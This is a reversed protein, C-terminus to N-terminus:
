SIVAVGFLYGHFYLLAGYVALGAIVAVVDKSWPQPGFRPLKGRVTGSVIDLVAFLAFCGFLWTTARDGNALLHGVSWILTGLMMPHKTIRRINNPFNAAAFLILSVPMLTMLLHRAWPKPAYLQVYEAQMMGFVMLVLGGLSLLSVVGKYANEGLASVVASRLGLVPLLHPVFFLALGLFLLTM